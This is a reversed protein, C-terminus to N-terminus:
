AVGTEDCMERVERLYGEPPVIIGAEGQISELIVAAVKEGVVQLNYIAKRM